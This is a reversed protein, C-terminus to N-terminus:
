VESHNNIGDRIAYYKINNDSTKIVTLLKNFEKTARNRPSMKNYFLANLLNVFNM